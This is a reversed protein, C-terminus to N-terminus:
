HLTDGDAGLRRMLHMMGSLAGPFELLTEIPSRLGFAGNSSRLWPEAETGCIHSAMKIVELLHRVRTEIVESSNVEELLTAVDGSAGTIILMVESKSLGVDLCRAILDGVLLRTEFNVDM